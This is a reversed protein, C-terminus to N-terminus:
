AAVEMVGLQSSGDLVCEAEKLAADVLTLWHGTKVLDGAEQEATALAHRVAAVLAATRENRAEADLSRRKM